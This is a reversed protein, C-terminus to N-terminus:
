FRKDRLFPFESRTKEVMSPDIEAVLMEEGSGASTVEEGVPGFVCSQGAYTIGNGDIGTRNVGAVYCQNEIARAKILSTWHDGRSAPWNAIVFVCAVDPAVKRFVEPFRLDYCIFVSSSVGELGFVVPSKGPTFHRDEGAPSFLHLKSFTSVLEGKRDFIIAKNMGKGEGPEILQLGAIVNICHRRAEDSLFSASEGDETEGLLEVNMSFGTSFMEPLVAVDAQEGRAQKILGAARSLNAAKKEWAIDMQILAIKM